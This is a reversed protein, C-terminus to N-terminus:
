PRSRVLPLYVRDVIEVIVDDPVPTLGTLYENRLLTVAVTALRPHLSAPSAEGRDVARGLITLWMSSGGDGVMKQLEAFLEPDEAASAMLGRVLDARPTAVDENMQRLVALVDERLSGTDPPGLRIEVLQKYAAVGLAARNPWRRYLANKNTGARRAVRDMTLGAYGSETLEDAAARLIAQELVAGRRRVKAM